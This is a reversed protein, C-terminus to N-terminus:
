RMGAPLLVVTIIAAHLLTYLHAGIMLEETHLSNKISETTNSMISARNSLGYIDM